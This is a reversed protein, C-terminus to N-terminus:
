ESKKKNVTKLSNYQNNWLSSYEFLETFDCNKANDLSEFDENEIFSMLYKDNINSMSYMTNIILPIQSDSLYLDHYKLFNIFDANFDAIMSTIEEQQTEFPSYGLLYPVHVGFFKALEEAKEPKIQRESNEWAIITRKSVGVIEALDDQTLKPSHKKRLEKIKNM